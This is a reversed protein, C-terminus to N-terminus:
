FQIKAAFQLIRNANGYATSNIQGFSSATTVTTAPSGLVPHNLVNFAEVDIKLAFGEKIPFLRHVSTDLNFFNQDHLFNRPANGLTGIAPVEFACPNFWQVRTRTPGAPPTCSPNAAIIGTQYPNGVLNAREYTGASGTNAIDGGAMVNFNQGSRASFIGNLQWNGIAYNILRNGTAFQKGAGFPLEYIMNATLIQPINFSAPGRSGKPNYPDEPVGGEVGFYGDGGEDLTKSWTYSITYGFGSNFQRALSAQLANYSASAANHDWSKQPVTYPYPQGTTGAAQRAAFSAAVAPTGTNYYGGVDMRHSASGVYNLSLITRNGFQQEIGLNYQESYPNKWLPDVMYNVNSSGFPTAAPLNGGNQAFPNQASTYITGPTNTSNIQLTGTDPWSGQYNQTMQIIAAWNDYSIGFGGRISMKDNVRYALGIRPGINDKSGHLIKGGSAVEVNAPLTASPLCPAHMRVSCLPPLQQIIYKGTNFDFDGTEISGQLGVSAQTGYAPIVSRDYRVGYNVTLNKTMKWSDQVYASGIGGPRETLLVNRKNESNPYDLLFDALGFGSQASVQSSSIGTPSNPNGSFNGTSAGSFTVTGQRLEATYNVQDWGGGAQFQHNGITKMVSGLWEHISSLNSSPSNVEGGNFGGTVTQTVLVAVGGVFSDCMDTSCGYTKWLNHNNFQTLTDDEVHTRGYQAQMSTTPNFVHLWSVGYQQAPIQTSAFLTPLSSPAAQYWQVGSYRFFIFDKAGIHQDVRGTYNYVLQRIPDTIQFNDTTPAIGPIVIPTASGFVANIFALSQPNMESVPIQNGLYGPRRPKAASNAITPDYLQCPYAEVKTDGAVCTGNKTVGTSASSFDGGLQAQTPILINTSGAKSYHTGEAGIEFFTKDRGNYLWPIRVPGGMQGGFTNLHYSSPASIYPKADFGNNRVFEWGSGHYSNTGAKTVINVVGGLSGGYQSDNHSNIKFEQITDVIPPVAYTNYWAQNDNMGDVLYITSRNGAGNISPFSYSTTSAAVVATNGAGSNQGTSIPTVGPTLTLLQTFNRGNLPLDNVAKEGIVTGLQATSSEVQTGAAEVTVSQSVDGVKLTANITVAQAVAIEFASITETQFNKAAFTLIYRAPPVSNFFYNGAANSVTIREVNTDVNKLTVKAGAVVAQAPDTVVGNVSSSSSQSIAPITLGVVSALFLSAIMTVRIVTSSRVILFFQM